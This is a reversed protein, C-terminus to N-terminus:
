AGLEFAQRSDSRFLIIDKNNTADQIAPVILNQLIDETVVGNVNITITGQTAQQQTQNSDASTTVVPNVATGFTGGAGGGSGSGSSINAAQAIGTAAILGVNLAGLAETASAAAHGAPTFGYFEYAKMVAARTSVITEAIALAKSLAIAAIAFGKHKAGLTSLLAVSNTFASTELSKRITTYQLLANAKDKELKKHAEAAQILIAQTFAFDADMEENTLGTVFNPRNSVDLGALPDQNGINGPKLDNGGGAPPFLKDLFSQLEDKANRTNEQITSMLDPLKSLEGQSVLVIAAGFGGILQEAEGAGFGILKFGAAVQKLLPPLTDLKDGKALTAFANGVSTIAPALAVAAETLQIGIVKHMINLQDNARESNRILDESMVIGLDSAQKKFALIGESGTRFLNVLAAGETDFAKFAFLLQQQTNDANKIGDAYELLVREATKFKGNNDTLSINMQALTDKLVGTGKQAEGLRRVFRQIGVDLANNAVGTQEAAFRYQQLLDTTVGLKDATKGLRDAFDLSSDILKTFGAGALAAGLGKSLRAFTRQIGKSRQQALREARNLSREFRTINAALDITISGLGAM